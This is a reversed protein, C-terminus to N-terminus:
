RMPHERIFLMLLRGHVYLGLLTGAVFFLFFGITLVPPDPKGVNFYVANPAVDLEPFLKESNYSPCVVGAITVKEKWGRKQLDDQLRGDLPGICVICKVRNVPTFAQSVLPIHAYKNDRKGYKSPPGTFAALEPALFGTVEILRQGKYEKDWRQIDIPTYTKETLASVVRPLFFVIGFICGVFFLEIKVWRLVSLGSM